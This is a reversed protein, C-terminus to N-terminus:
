LLFTSQILYHGVITKGPGGKLYHGLVLANGGCLSAASIKELKTKTALIQLVQFFQELFM